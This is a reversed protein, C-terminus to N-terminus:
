MCLNYSSHTILSKKIIVYNVIKHKKCMDDNQLLLIYCKNKIYQLMCSMM